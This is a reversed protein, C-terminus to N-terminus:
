YVLITHGVVDIEERRFRILREGVGRSVNRTEPLAVLIAGRLNFRSIAQNAIDSSQGAPDAQEVHDFAREHSTSRDEESFVIREHDSKPNLCRYPEFECLCNRNVILLDPMTQGEGFAQM